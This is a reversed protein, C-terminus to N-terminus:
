GGEAMRFSLAVRTGEQERSTLRVEGGFREMIRRVLALGVGLGGRKTSYFPKFAMELQQASMGIGTDGISLCLRRQTPDVQLALRLRGGHPMAELANALVSNLAQNLLVPHSVVRPVPAPSWELRVGTRAMQPEFANLVEGVAAVLDVAEHEDNLQSSCLLLERVWKSLRDVQAIIDVINKRAPSCDLDLALEASTRIAALPNRLGHAVASSMEGLAVLTENEILQRQQAALLDSGRRVIWFLGLYVAGGGVGAALWLLLHAREMREILDSSEKYIELVAAVEGSQDLLPIYNEFYLGSPSRVFQQETRGGQVKWHAHAVHTKQRFAQELEDRDLLRRGVLEANTSWVITRDPAFLNVQLADPLNSVHDLFESRVQHLHVRDIEERVVEDRFDLFDGLGVPATFSAHRIEGETLARIVQATLMADREISDVIAYRTASIAMGVAVVAILGLSVLSFWRLLNFPQPASAM